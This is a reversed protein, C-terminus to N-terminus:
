KRRRPGDARSARLARDSVIAAVAGALLFITTDGEGECGGVVLRRATSLLGIHDAIPSLSSNEPYFCKDEHSFSGRGLTGFAEMAGAAPMGQAIAALFLHVSQAYTEVEPRPPYTPVPAASTLPPPGTGGVVSEFAQLVKGHQPESLKWEAALPEACDSIIARAHSHLCVACQVADSRAEADERPEPGSSAGAPDSCLLAAALAVRDKYVAISLTNALRSKQSL